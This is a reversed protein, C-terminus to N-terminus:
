NFWNDYSKPYLISTNGIIKEIRAIRNEIDPVQFEKKLNDSTKGLFLKFDINKNQDPSAKLSLIKSLMADGLQSDMKNKLLILHSDISLTEDRKSDFINRFGISWCIIVNICNHQICLVITMKFSSAAAAAAM